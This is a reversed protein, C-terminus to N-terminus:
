IDVSLGDYAMIFKNNHFNQKWGDLDEDSYKQDLHAFISLKNGIQQTLEMGQDTTSHGWGKRLSHYDKTSYAADLVVADAGTCYKKILNLARDNMGYLECDLLHAFNKQGDTIHFSFTKDPHVAEFGTVTFKGIKFPANPELQVVEVAGLEKLSAPWYPPKFIDCVQDILPRDDRSCTFIRVGRHKDWAPAFTGLGSIHDIHLHSILINVTHAPTNALESSLTMIGSGADIVLYEDGSTVKVCPTNGGYRSGPRSIAVSGRCGYITVNM